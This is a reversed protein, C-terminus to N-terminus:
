GNVLELRVPLGVRGEEPMTVVELGRDDPGTVELGCSDKGLRVEAELKLPLVM